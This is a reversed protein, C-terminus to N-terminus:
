YEAPVLLKMEKCSVLEVTCWLGGHGPRFQGQCGSGKDVEDDGVAYVDHPDEVQETVVLDM